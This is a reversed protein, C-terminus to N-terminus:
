CDGRRNKRHSSFLKEGGRYGVCVRHKVVERYKVIRTDGVVENMFVRQDEQNRSVTVV